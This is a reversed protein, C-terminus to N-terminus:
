RLESAHQRDSPDVVRYAHFSGDAKTHAKCWLSQGGSSERARKCEPCTRESDPVTHGRPRVVMVTCPAHRIVSEAVSGLVLRSVGHRGHTGVVILDADLKEALRTIEVAVNGAVVHAVVECEPKKGLRGFADHVTEALSEAMAGVPPPPRPMPMDLTAPPNAEATVHVLHLASANQLALHIGRDLALDGLESFDIGVVITRHPETTIM